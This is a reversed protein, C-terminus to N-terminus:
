ITISPPKTDTTTPKPDLAPSRQDHREGRRWVVRRVLSGPLSFMRDATLRGNERRLKARLNQSTKNQLASKRFTAELTQVIVCEPCLMELRCKEIPLM